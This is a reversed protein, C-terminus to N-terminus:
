MEYQEDLQKDLEESNISYFNAIEAIRNRNRTSEHDQQKSILVTYEKNVMTTIEDEKDDIAMTHGDHSAVIAATLTTKDRLLEMLEDTVEVGETVEGKTQKDLFAVAIDSIQKFCTEEAERMKAMREQTEEVAKAVLEAFSRDFLNTSEEISAVLSLELEMLEYKAAALDDKLKELKNSAVVTQSPELRDIEGQVKNKQRVFADVIASGKGRNEELGDELAEFFLEKEQKRALAHELGQTGIAELNENFTDRFTNLAEEIDPIPFLTPIHQDLMQEFLAAGYMGPVCAAKYMTEKEEKQAAQHQTADAEQEKIEEIALRDQYKVIASERTTDSIRRWDVYRLTPLFAVVFAEYNPDDCMPNGALNVSRLAKFQRLYLVPAEELTELRNDGISLVDLKTLSDLGELRTIQNHHLSLDTLNVLAELGEIREINNFSLDLWQLQTLHDLNEVHEILNNDLQLKTLNKFSILNDIMLINQFDIRLSSVDDETYGSSDEEYETVTTPAQEATLKSLLEDSIVCIEVGVGSQGTPMAVVVDQV